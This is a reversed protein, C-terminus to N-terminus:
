TPYQVCSDASTCQMSCAAGTSSISMGQTRMPSSPTWFWSPTQSSLEISSLTNTRTTFTELVCDNHHSISRVSGATCPLSNHSITVPKMAGRILRVNSTHLVLEHRRSPTHVHVATTETNAGKKGELSNVRHTRVANERRWVSQLM